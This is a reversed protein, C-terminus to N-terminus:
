KAEVANKLSKKVTKDSLTLERMLGMNKLVEKADRGSYILYLLRRQEAKPREKGVINSAVTLPIHVKVIPKRSGEKKLKDVMEKQDSQKWTCKVADVLEPVGSMFVTKYMRAYRQSVGFCRSLYPTIEEESIEGREALDILIKVVEFRRNETRSDDKVRLQLQIYLQNKAQADKSDCVIFCPIETIATEEEQNLLNIAHFRQEGELIEYLGDNEPGAVIMPTLIGYNKIGDMIDSLVETDPVFGSRTRLQSLPMFCFEQKVSGFTNDEM